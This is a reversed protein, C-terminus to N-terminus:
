RNPGAKDTGGIVSGGPDDGTIASGAQVTPSERDAIVMLQVRVCVVLGSSLRPHVLEKVRSEISRKASRHHM